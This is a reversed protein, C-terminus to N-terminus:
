IKKGDILFDLETASTEAIENLIIDRDLQFQLRPVDAPNWNLSIRSVPCLYEETRADYQGPDVGTWEGTGLTEIRSKAEILLNDVWHFKVWPNLRFIERIENENIWGQRYQKLAKWLSQFSESILESFDSNGNLYFVAVPSGLGVLWEALRSSAGTYTFGFQLKITVFWQQTGEIDMANRLNLNRTANTILDKATHSPQGNSLFLENRLPHYTPLINRIAPWVSGETSNERCIESGLCLLIGGFMENLCRKTINPKLLSFWAELWHIDDSTLRLEAISWLRDFQDAKKQLPEYVSELNANSPSLHEWM